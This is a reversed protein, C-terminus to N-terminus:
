HTRAQAKPSASGELVSGFTPTIEFELEVDPRPPDDETTFDMWQRSRKSAKEVDAVAGRWLERGSETFVRAFAALKGQEVLDFLASAADGLAAVEEFMSPWFRTWSRERVLARITEEIKMTTDRSAM